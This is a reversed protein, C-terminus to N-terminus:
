RSTPRTGTRAAWSSMRWSICASSRPRSLTVKATAQHEYPANPTLNEPHERAYRIFEDVNQRSRAAVTRNALRAVPSTSEFRPFSARAKWHGPRDQRLHLTTGPVVGGAATSPHGSAPLTIAGTLLAAALALGASTSLFLTARM